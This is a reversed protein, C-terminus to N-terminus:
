RGVSWSSTEIHSRDGLGFMPVINSVQYCININYIPLKRGDQKIVTHKEFENRGLYQTCALGSPINQLPSDDSVFGSRVKFGFYKEDFDVIDEKLYRIAVDRIENADDVALKFRGDYLQTRESLVTVLSYSLRDLKARVSLKYAFEISFLILLSLIVGVVAFEVSFNGNQKYRFNTVVM